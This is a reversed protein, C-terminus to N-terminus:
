SAKRIETSPAGNIGPKGMDVKPYNRLMSIPLVASRQVSEVPM